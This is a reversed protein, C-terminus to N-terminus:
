REEKRPLDTVEDDNNRGVLFTKKVDDDNNRGVLFTKLMM